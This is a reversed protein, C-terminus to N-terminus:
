TSTSTAGGAGAGGFANGTRQGFRRQRHRHFSRRGAVPGQVDGCGIAPAVAMAEPPKLRRGDPSFLEGAPGVALIDVFEQRQQGIADEIQDEGVWRVIEGLAESFPDKPLGGLLV